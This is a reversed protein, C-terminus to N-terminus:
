TALSSSPRPAPAKTATTRSAGTTGAPLWPIPLGTEAPARRGTQEPVAGDSPWRRHPGRPRRQAGTRLRSSKAPLLLRAAPAKTWGQGFCGGPQAAAPVDGLRPSAPSHRGTGPPRESRAPPELRLSSASRSPGSRRTELPAGASSRATSCDATAPGKRAPCARAHCPRFTPFPSPLPCPWPCISPRNECPLPHLHSLARSCWRHGAYGAPGHGKM